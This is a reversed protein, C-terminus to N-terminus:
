PYNRVEGSSPNARSYWRGAAPHTSRRHHSNTCWGFFATRCSRGALEFILTLALSALAIGRLYKPRRRNHPLDCLTRELALQLYIRSDDASGLLVPITRARIIAAM